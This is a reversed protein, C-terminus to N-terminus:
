AALDADGDAELRFPFHRDNARSVSPLVLPGAWLADVHEPDIVTSRVNPYHSGPVLAAFRGSQWDREIQVITPLAPQGHPNLMWYWGTRGPKVKTWTLRQQTM